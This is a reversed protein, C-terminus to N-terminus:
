CIVAPVKSNAKIKVILSNIQKATTRILELISKLEEFSKCGLEEIIILQTELEFLSGMSMELFRKFEVESSRSAGEAINGPISVAARTMQSRLGYKEDSPLSEIIVYVPKVITIGNKWINLDKFSRM